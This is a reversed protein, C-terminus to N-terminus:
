CVSEVNWTTIKFLYLDVEKSPDAWDFGARFFLSGDDGSLPESKMNLLFNTFIADAM